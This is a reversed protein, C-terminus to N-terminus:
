TVSIGWETALKIAVGDENNSGIVASSKAKVESLANATAYSRNALEFMPLDNLNDGFVVLEDFEVFNKLDAIANKKSAKPSFVELCYAGSYINLYFATSVKGIALLAENIQSLCSYEGTSAIYFTRGMNLMAGLHEVLTVSEAFKIARESFYQSQKEASVNNYYIRIRNEHFLYLFPYAGYSAFVSLVEQSTEDDLMHILPYEGMKFDYLMVGNILIGPINLNLSKVLFDCAFPMRATAITFLGNKALGANIVHSSFPSIAKAKNLLTGDLDSVYLTKQNNLSMLNM